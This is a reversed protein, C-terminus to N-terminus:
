EPEIIDIMVNGSEESDASTIGSLITEVRNNWYRQSKEVDAPSCFVYDAMDTVDRAFRDAGDLYMTNIVPLLYFITRCAIAERYDEDEPDIDSVARGARKEIDKTARVLHPRIVGDVVKEPLNAISRVATFSIM